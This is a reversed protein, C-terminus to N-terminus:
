LGSTTKGVLPHICIQHSGRAEFGTHGRFLPWTPEIGMWERRAAEAAGECRTAVGPVTAPELPEAETPESNSQSGIGLDATHQTAKSAAGTLDSETVQLYHRSAPSSDIGIGGDDRYRIAQSMLSSVFEDRGVPLM